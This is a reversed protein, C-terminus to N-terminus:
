TCSSGRWRRDGWCSSRGPRTAAAARPRRIERRTRARSPGGPSPAVAARRHRHADRACRLGRLSRPGGIGLRGASPAGGRRRRGPRARGRRARARREAAHSSAAGSPRLGHPSPRPRSGAAPHRAGGQRPRHGAFAVLIGGRPPCADDSPKRSPARRPADGGAELRARAVAELAPGPAEACIRGRARIASGTPTSAIACSGRCRRRSCSRWWAPRSTARAAPWAGRLRRRAPRRLAAPGARRLSARAPRTAASSFGRPTLRAEFLATRALVRAQAHAVRAAWAWRACKGSRDAALARLRVGAPPRRRVLARPRARVADVRARDRRPGRGSRPSLGRAFSSAGLTRPLEPLELTLRSGGRGFTDVRAVAARPACAMGRGRRAGRGRAAGRGARRGACSRRALGRALPGRDRRAPARGVCRLAARPAPVYPPGRTSSAWAGARRSAALGAAPAVPALAPAAGAAAELWLGSEGATQAAVVGRWAERWRCRGRLSRGRLARAAGSGRTGVRRRGRAGVRAHLLAAGMARLADGCRSTRRSPALEGLADWTSKGAVYRSRRSRSTMTPRGGRSRARAGRAVARAGEGRAVDRDLALSTPWIDSLWPHDRARRRRGHACTRDVIAAEASALARAARGRRGIAVRPPAPSTSSPATTARKRPSSSPGSPTSRAIPPAPAARGPAQIARVLPGRHARRGATSRAAGQAARRALASPAARRLAAAYVDVPPPGLAVGRSALMGLVRQFHEIEERALDTLARALEPDGPHRAVLSLANSAAKMECHAHDVLVADVDRMAAAAWAADTPVKLCLM